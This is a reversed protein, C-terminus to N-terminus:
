RFAADGDLSASQADTPARTRTARMVSKVAAGVLERMFRHRPDTTFRPHWLLQMPLLPLALPPKAIVLAVDASRAVEEPLTCVLHTRAVVHAATHFSTVTAAVRRRLGLKALYDDVFGRGDADPGVVLHDAAAFARLDLRRRPRQQSSVVVFRREYLRKAVFDSTDVARADSPLASLDPALALAIDGRRGAHVSDRTLRQIRVDVGPAAGWLATLIAEAFATQAEDGLAIRLEGRATLPDFAEPREFVRAAARLASSVPEALAKARETPVLNRGDRVFIPDGLADRLRQLTRSMAPQTVGLAAASATVSGTGLLRDLAILLNLDLRVLNPQDM